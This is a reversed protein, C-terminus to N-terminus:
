PESAYNYTPLWNYQNQQPRPLNVVVYNNNNNYNNNNDVWGDEM